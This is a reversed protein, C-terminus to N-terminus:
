KDNIAEIPKIKVAKVAPILGAASGLVMFTLMIAIATAFPLEFGAPGYVPDATLRAAIALVATAFTIGGLGAITTLVTGESLIQMVIDSPHAGIARRIGIEQTREKVIIWMINGVGVVGAILTGAGVFGALLTIVMFLSEIMEFQESIDHFGVAAHDDPHIPHISQVIKEIRERTDAVRRGPAVTFTFFWVKNGVNFARRMTNFPIVVNQDMRGGISAEGKQGAVGVIRVSIGGVTIYKGIASEDGFWEAAVDRGLVAVKASTRDDSENLLRGELLVPIQINFFQSEVGQLGIMKSKNKYSATVSQFLMGSSANIEPITRRVLSVDRDDMTWESGKNYGQFSITRPNAWLLGMNTSIGSFNRSIMSRLGGAGGLLMALMATGWFIGFATLATRTKNRGLTSGIERWNDTDFIRRM